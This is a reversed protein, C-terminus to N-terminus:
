TQFTDVPGDMMELFNLGEDNIQLMKNHFPCDDHMDFTQILKRNVLENAALAVAEPPLHMEEAFKGISGVSWRRLLRLLNLAELSLM